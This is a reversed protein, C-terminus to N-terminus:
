KNGFQTLIYGFNRKFPSHATKGQAWRDAALSLPMLWFWALGFIAL